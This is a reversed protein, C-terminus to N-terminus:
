AFLRGLGPIRDKINTMQFAKWLTAQNSTIVPVGTDHELADIIEFTRYGGCSILIGDAENKSAAFVSRGQRYAVSPELSICDGPETIQLGDMAVVEFGDQELYDKLRGNAHDTYVTGVAVRRMGVAHMAEVMATMMTTARISTAQEIQGIVERDHGHGVLFIGPAGCQVILDVQASAVERAARVVQDMMEALGNETVENVLTRADAFAVGDPAVRRWEEAGEIASAPRIQGIRARWGLRM